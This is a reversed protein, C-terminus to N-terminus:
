SVEVNPALWSMRRFAERRALRLGPLWHLRRIRRLTPLDSRSGQRVGSSARRARRCRQVTFLDWQRQMRRMPGRQTQHVAV